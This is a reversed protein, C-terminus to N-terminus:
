HSRVWEYVSDPMRCTDFFDSADSDDEKLASLESRMTERQREIKEFDAQLEEYLARNLESLQQAKFRERELDRIDQEHQAITQELRANEESASSYRWYFWGAAIMSAALLTGLAVVVPKRLVM